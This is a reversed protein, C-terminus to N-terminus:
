KLQYENVGAINLARVTTAFKVRNSFEVQIDITRNATDGTNFACSFKTVPIATLATAANSGVKKYLIQDSGLYISHNTSAVGFTYSKIGNKTSFIKIDSAYRLEECVADLSRRAQRIEALTNTTNHYSRNTNSFSYMAAVLIIIAIISYILIELLTFGAENSALHNKM